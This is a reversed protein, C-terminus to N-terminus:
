VATWEASVLEQEGDLIRGQFSEGALVKGVGAPTGTM